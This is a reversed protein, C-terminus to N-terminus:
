IKFLTHHYFRTHMRFSFNDLLYSICLMCFLAVNAFASLFDILLRVILVGDTERARGAAGSRLTLADGLVCLADRQENSALSALSPSASPVSASQSANTHLSHPPLASPSLALLHANTLRLSHGRNSSERFGSNCLACVSAARDSRLPEPLASTDLSLYCLDVRSRM